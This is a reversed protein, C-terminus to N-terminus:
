AESDDFPTEQIYADEGFQAKLQERYFAMIPEPMDTSTFTSLKSCPGITDNMDGTHVLGPYLALAGDGAGDFTCGSDM